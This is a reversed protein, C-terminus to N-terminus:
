PIKIMYIKEKRGRYENTQEGMVEAYNAKLLASLYINAARRSVILKRALEGSTIRRDSSLEMVARIKELTLPSLGCDKAIGKTADSYNRDIVMRVNNKNMMIQMGNEGILCTSTEIRMAAEKNANIANIQAQYLDQGIGYGIAYSFDTNDDLFSQLACNQMNETIREIEKKQTWLELGNHRPQLIYEFCMGNGFKKLAANLLKLRETESLFSRQKGKKFTIIIVAVQTDRLSEILVDQALRLCVEQVYQEGPYAFKVNVGQEQLATMLNSFRTLSIDVLGKKWLDKHKAEYRSSLEILEEVSKSNILQEQLTFYEKEYNGILFDSVSIGLMDLFDVFVRNIDLHPIELFLTALHKYIGSIDTNFDMFVRGSDPFAKQIIKDTIIGSSVIGKIHPPIKRYVDCIELSHDYTYLTYHLKPQMQSLVDDTFQSLFNTTIVAIHPLM